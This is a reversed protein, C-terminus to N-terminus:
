LRGPVPPSRPNPLSKRFCPCDGPLDPRYPSPRCGEQEWDRVGQFPSFFSRLSVGPARLWWAAEVPCAVARCHRGRGARKGPRGRRRPRPRPAPRAPELSEAPAPARPRPRPSVRRCLSAQGRCNQFYWPLQDPGPGLFHRAPLSRPRSRPARAAASSGPRWRPARPRRSPRRARRGLAAVGFVRGEARRRRPGASRCSQPVWGLERPRRTLPSRAGRSSGGAEGRDGRTKSARLPPRGLGPVLSWSLYAGRERARLRSGASVGM